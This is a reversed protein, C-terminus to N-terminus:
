TKSVAPVYKAVSQFGKCSSARNPQDTAMEPSVTTTPRRTSVVASIRIGARGVNKVRRACVQGRKPLGQLVIGPETPRHGDRPVGHHDPSTSVM